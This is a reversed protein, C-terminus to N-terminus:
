LGGMRAPWAHRQWFGRRPPATAALLARSPGAAILDHLRANLAMDAQGTVPLGQDAEFGSIAHSLHPGHLGDLAGPDYGLHRLLLQIELTEDRDPLM